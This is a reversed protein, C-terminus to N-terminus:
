CHTQLVLGGMEYFPLLHVLVASPIYRESSLL